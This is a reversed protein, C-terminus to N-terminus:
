LFEAQAAVQNFPTDEHRVFTDDALAGFLNWYGNPWGTDANKSLSRTVYKSLSIHEIRANRRAADLVEQDLYLSVQPMFM